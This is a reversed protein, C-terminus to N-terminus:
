NTLILRFDDNGSGRVIAGFAFNLVMDQRHRDHRHSYVYFGTWQGSQFTEDTMM